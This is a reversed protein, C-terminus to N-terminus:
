RLSFKAYVFNGRQFPFFSFLSTTPSRTCVLYITPQFTRSFSRSCCQHESFFFLSHAYYKYADHPGGCPSIRRRRALVRSFCPPSSPQCVMSGFYSSTSTTYYTSYRPFRTRTFHFPSLGGCHSTSSSLSLTPHLFSSIPSAIGTRRVCCVM